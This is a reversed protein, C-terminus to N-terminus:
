LATDKNQGLLVRLSRDDDAGQTLISFAHELCAEDAAVPVEIGGNLETLKKASGWGQNASGALYKKLRKM